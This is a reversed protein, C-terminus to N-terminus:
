LTGAEDTAPATDPAEPTGPTETPAATGRPRRERPTLFQDRNTQDIEVRNIRGTEPDALYAPQGDLQVNVVRPIGISVVLRYKAAIAYARDPSITRYLAQAGDSYVTAWSEEQATLTLRISDPPQYTPVNWNYKDGGAPESGDDSTADAEGRTSSGASGAGTGDAFLVFYGVLFIIFAGVIVGAIIGAKKLFAGVDPEGRGSAASTAGKKKHEKQRVDPPLDPELSEGLEERMAEITKAYDIGLFEAYSRSFLTFYLEAPLAAVEGAELHKLTEEPIKLESSIIELAVGQHERELRLLEGFKVHLESM